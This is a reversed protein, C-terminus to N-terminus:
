KAVGKASRGRGVASECRWRRRTIAIRDEGTNRSTSGFASGHQLEGASGALVCHMEGGGQSMENPLRGIRVLLGASANGRVRGRRSEGVQERRQLEIGGAGTQGSVRASATTEILM